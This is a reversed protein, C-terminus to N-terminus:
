PYRRAITQTSAVRTRATDLRNAIKDAIMQGEAVFMRAGGARCKFGILFPQANAAIKGM